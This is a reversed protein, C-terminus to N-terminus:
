MKLLNFADNESSYFGLIKEGKIVVFENLHEKVLKNRNKVFYKYEKELM